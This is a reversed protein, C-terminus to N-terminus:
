DEDSISIVYEKELNVGLARMELSLFSIINSAEGHLGEKLVFFMSNMINLKEKFYLLKNTKDFM